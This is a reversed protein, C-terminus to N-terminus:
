NCETSFVEVFEMKDFREQVNERRIGMGKKSAIRGKNSLDKIDKKYNGNKNFMFGLYKFIQVEEIREGKWKWREKKENNGRNFVLIKCKRV